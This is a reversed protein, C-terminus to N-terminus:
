FHFVIGTSLRINGQSQDFFRTWVFGAETRWGVIRTIRYDLGGGTTFAFSTSSGFVDTGMHALGFEFEAFPRFNGWSASFRPGFMVEEEHGTVSPSIPGSGAPVAIAYNQSGYHGSFDAVIGIPPLVKGELTAEWGQLNPRGPNQPAPVGLASPNASEFSYGVFVNGSTPVQAAALGSLACLTTIVTVSTKLM